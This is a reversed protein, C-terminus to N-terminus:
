LCEETLLICCPFRWWVPFPSRRFNYFLWFYWFYDFQYDVFECWLFMVLLFGLHWSSSLCRIVFSLWFRKYIPLLIKYRLRLILFFFYFSSILIYTIYFLRIFYTNFSMFPIFKPVSSRYFVLLLDLSWSFLRCSKFTLKSLVPVLTLFMSFNSMLPVRYFLYDLDLYWKLFYFM